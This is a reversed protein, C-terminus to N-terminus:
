IEKWKLIMESVEKFFCYHTPPNGKLLVKIRALIFELNPDDFSFGIFLFTKSLLDSVYLQQFFERKDNFTEYDDKTLVADDPHIKIVTCKISLQM